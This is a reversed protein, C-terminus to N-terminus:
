IQGGQEGGRIDIGSWIYLINETWSTTIKSFIEYAILRINEISHKQM